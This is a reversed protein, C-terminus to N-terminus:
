RDLQWGTWRERPAFGLAENVSVMYTNSEANWTNIWRTRPMAAAVFRHNHAKLLMGLQRGRHETTVLTAWQYGVEPARTSVAIETFGALRGSAEHEVATTLRRRGQVRVLQEEARYRDADWVEPEWDMDEFPADTSMRQKLVALDDVLAAPAADEWQHLRYGAPVEPTATVAHLHLDVTRRVEALVPRAGVSQLLPALPAAGEPYASPVEFLVRPRGRATLEDLLANLLARGHGQCRHEPHVRLDISGSLTNDATPLHLAAAAVGTGAVEVSWLETRSGIDPASGDMDPIREEIPDAPLQAFDHSFAAVSVAHWQDLARMDTVHQIQRATM